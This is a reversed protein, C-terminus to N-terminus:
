AVVTGRWQELSGYSLITLLYVNSFKVRHKQSSFSLRMGLGAMGPLDPVNLSRELKEPLFSVTVTRHLM